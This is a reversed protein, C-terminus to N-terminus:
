GALFSINWPCSALITPTIECVCKNEREREREREEGRREGREREAAQDSM